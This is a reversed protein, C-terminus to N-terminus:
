RLAAKRSGCPGGHSIAEMAIKEYWAGCPTEFGHEPGRRFCTRRAYRDHAMRMREEAPGHVVFHDKARRLREMVRTEGHKTEIKAPRSQAFPNVVVAAALLVVNAGREIIKRTFERRARDQQGAEAEARPNTQAHPALFRAYGFQDANPKRHIFRIQAIQAGARFGLQDHLAALVFEARARIEFYKEGRNWFRLAEHDDIGGAM